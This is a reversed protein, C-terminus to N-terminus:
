EGPDCGAPAVDPVNALLGALERSAVRHGAATWHADGEFYLRDRPSSKAAARLAPLLDLYAAGQRDAIEALHRNPATLATDVESSGTERDAKAEARLWRAEEPYVQYAAPAAVLALRSDARAVEQALAGILAETLQWARRVESSERTAFLDRKVIGSRGDDDDDDDQDGLKALVGSELYTFSFSLRGLMLALPSEEPTAHFELETLSGDKELRFGPGTHWGGRPDARRANNAVDNGMFFLLIVLDPRLALGENRLYVLEEGTGWGAVGGNVVECGPGVAGGLLAATTQTEAVQRAEVFSDGALLVRGRGPTPQQAIAPGRLGFANTRVHTLYESTRYWASANAAHFHGYQEHPIMLVGLQYDGPIIPGFARLTLEFLLLPLMLGVLPLVLLRALWLRRSAPRRASGPLTSGDPTPRADREPDLGATTV